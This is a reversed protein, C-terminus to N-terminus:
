ANGKTPLHKKSFDKIFEKLERDILDMRNLDRETPETGPDLMTMISGFLHQAGAFFAMRMERLQEEPADPAIVTMQMSVWGAEIIKGSDSLRKTVEAAVANVDRTM